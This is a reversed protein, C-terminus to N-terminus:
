FAETLEILEPYQPSNPFNIIHKIVVRAFEITEKDIVHSPFMKYICILREISFEKLIEDYVTKDLIPKERASAGYIKIKYDPLSEIGLILNRKKWYDIWFGSFTKSGYKLNIYISYGKRKIGLWQGIPGEPLEQKTNYLKAKKNV